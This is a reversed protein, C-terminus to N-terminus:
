ERPLGSREYRAQSAIFAAVFLVGLAFDVLAFLVLSRDVQGQLHLLFVTIAYGFKALAPPIMLSRFRGPNSAIVFFSVQWALTVVVFGYYFDPHTIPPPSQRGVVDKLFFLPPIVLVGWIGAILFVAKAFKM